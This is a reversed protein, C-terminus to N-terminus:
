ENHKPESQIKDKAQTISNDILNVIEIQSGLPETLLYEVSPYESAALKLLNPIDEVVHRGPSLFYPHCIISTAGQEVCRKFATSISPEALEMHAPEVIEEQSFSKYKRVLQLLFCFVSNVLNSNVSM